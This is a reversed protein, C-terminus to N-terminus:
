QPLVGLNVLKNKRLKDMVAVMHGYPVKANPAVTASSIVTSPDVALGNQSKVVTGILSGLGADFQNALEEITAAAFKTSKIVGGKTTKLTVGLATPATFRVEMEYKQSPNPAAASTGHSQKVDISSTQVWVATILLFCICMSLLDIFPVLNVEAELSKKGGKSPLSVAGM